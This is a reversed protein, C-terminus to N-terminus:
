KLIMIIKIGEIIFIEIEIMGVNQPYLLRIIAMTSKLSCIRRNNIMATYESKLEVLFSGFLLSSITLLIM